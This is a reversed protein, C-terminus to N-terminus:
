CCVTLPLSHQSLRDSALGARARTTLDPDNAALTHLRDCITQCTTPEIASEALAQLGVVAAYRIAWDPDAVIQLLVTLAQTQASTRQETPLQDWRLEGL